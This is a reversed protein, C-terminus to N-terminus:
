PISNRTEIQLHQQWVQSQDVGYSDAQYNRLVSTGKRSERNVYLSSGDM